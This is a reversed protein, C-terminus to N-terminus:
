ARPFTLTQAVFNRLFQEVQKRGHLGFRQQITQWPQRQIIKAVMVDLGPQADLEGSKMQQQLWLSLQGIMLDYGLGGQSFNWLQQYLADPLEPLWSPQLAAQYLPIFVDSELSQFQECAQAKFNLSFSAQAIEFWGKAQVSLPLVTLLSHCGSAADKAVGLRVPLYGAKQWFPLLDGSAAFSTGLYDLHCQRAWDFICNLLASGVGLQRADDHIAIRLIRGCHQSTAEALGLHAAVSQALLHGKPRRKGQSVAQALEASFGGERSVLACGYIIDQRLAVFVSLHEDDLLQRLDAPSTQYHAHILLGFLSSLRAPQQLLWASSVVRYELTDSQLPLVIPSPEADLLLTQFLWQELPDGEAWRIPQKMSLARWNPTQVDLAAKFKIAFGRGTGEYGHVTSAFVVRSYASLIKQLLPAPIAAAEDVVLLDAEPLAELLRDPAWFSLKSQQYALQYGSCESIGLMQAAHYFLTQCHRQRPATVLIQRPKEQMLIAAALGLASSKGRGRDATIVLPRRRHGNVVRRIAEVAEVQEDSLCGYLRPVQTEAVSADSPLRPFDVQGDSKQTLFMVEPAQLRTLFRQMFPTQWRESRLRPLLLLM